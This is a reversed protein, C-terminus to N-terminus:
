VVSLPTPCSVIEKLARSRTSWLEVRNMRLFSFNLLTKHLVHRRLGRPLSLVWSSSFNSSWRQNRVNTLGRASFLSFNMSVSRSRLKTLPLFPRLLVNLDLTGCAQCYNADSDNPYLCASCRRAPEWPRAM